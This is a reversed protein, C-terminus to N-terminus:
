VVLGYSGLNSWVSGIRSSQSGWRDSEASARRLM